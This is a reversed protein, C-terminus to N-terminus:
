PLAIWTRIEARTLKPCECCETDGFAAIEYYDCNECMTFQYGGCRDCYVDYFWHRDGDESGRCTANLWREVRVTTNVKNIYNM